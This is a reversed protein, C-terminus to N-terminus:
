DVPTPMYDSILVDKVKGKGLVEDLITKFQRRLTSLGYDPKESRALCLTSADAGAIVTRMRDKITAINKEIEETIGGSEKGEGEKGEKAKEKEKEKGETSEGVLSKPVTAYVTMRIVYLRGTNTHPCEFQNAIIVEETKAHPDETEIKPAEKEPVEIGAAEAPGKNVMKYIFLCLGGELLLVTTVIGGIIMMKKSGKGAPVPAATDKQSTEEGAM